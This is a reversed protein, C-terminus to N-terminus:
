VNAAEKPETSNRLHAVLKNLVNTPLEGAVKANYKKLTLKITEAKKPDFEYRMLEELLITQARKLAVAPNIAEVPAQMEVRADNDTQCVGVLAALAYRRLYTVVSGASQALSMGKGREVVMSARSSVWQGSEHMLCTEVGMREGNSYLLQTVSLGNEALLPRAIDLVQSLDAYNYGYGKKDKSVDTIKGQLKSLASALKEITESKLM